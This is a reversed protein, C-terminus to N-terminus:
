EAVLGAFDPFRAVAAEFHAGEHEQDEPHPRQNLRGQFHAGFLHRRAPSEGALAAHWLDTSFIVCSGPPCSVHVEGPWPQDMNPGLPALPDDYRRPLVVLPGSEPTCGELYWNCLLREPREGRVTSGYPIANEAASYRHTHWGLRPVHTADSLRAGSHVLRPADEFIAELITKVLPDLYFPAMAADLNCLPHLVYGFTGIEQGKGDLVLQDLVASAAACQDLSLSKEVVYFGNDLVSQVAASVIEPDVDCVLNEQKM